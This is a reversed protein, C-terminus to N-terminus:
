TLYGYKGGAKTLKIVNLAAQKIIKRQARKQMSEYDHPECTGTMNDKKNTNNSGHHHSLLAGLWYGVLASVASLL